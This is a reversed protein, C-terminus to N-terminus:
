FNIEFHVIGKIDKMMKSRWYNYRSKLINLYRYQFVPCFYLTLVYNKASMQGESVYVRFTGV